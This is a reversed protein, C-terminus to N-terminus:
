FVRNISKTLLPLRTVGIANTFGADKAQQLTDIGDIYTFTSKGDVCEEIWGDSGGDPDIRSIPNNGMGLYPSAYQGM